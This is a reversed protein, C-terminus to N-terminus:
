ICAVYLMRLEANFRRSYPETFVQMRAYKKCIVGSVRVLNALHLTCELVEWNQPLIMLDHIFKFVSCINLPDISYEKLRDYLAAKITM